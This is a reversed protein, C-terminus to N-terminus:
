VKIKFYFDREEKGEERSPLDTPNAKSPVWEFFPQCRLGALALHLLNCLRGMDTNRCYGHICASLAHTNDIFFICQRDKLIEPFTLTACLVARLEMLGIQPKRDQLQRLIWTPCDLSSRYARGNQCDVIIIGLEKRRVNGDTKNKAVSTDTYVLM